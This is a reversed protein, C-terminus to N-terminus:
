KPFPSGTVNAIWLQSSPREEGTIKGGRQSTWMMMSGDTSFAPLVDAGDAQTVRSRKLTAPDQGGRLKWVNAEIAFVEYNRHSIESTAYVLYDGSPHWYPCWNVHENDTLQWEQDIGIPINTGDASEEHKLDAVFIQLLDNGKRDSRFCIFGDNPHFFPGGDYGVASVIPHHTKTERDFIYLNADPRYPQEADAGQTDPRDEVHAYLLFRGDKSFSGEADYNPREFLPQPKAHSMDSPGARFSRGSGEAGPVALGGGMLFPSITVIEMEQPFQWVYKRTGVQFGSKQDDSPRVVTSGFIVASENDPDFWGCTNASGTPSVRTISELSVSGAGRNLRAVYMAYFPDAPADAKPQEIAQFIIWNADPSFYAEGAKVFRDPFTLQTHNTLFPAELAKWDLPTQAVEAQPSGVPPQTVPPQTAPQQALAPFAAALVAVCLIRLHVTTM